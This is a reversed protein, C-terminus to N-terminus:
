WIVDVEDVGVMVLLDGVFWENLVYVESEIPKGHGVGHEVWEDIVPHIGPSNHWLVIKRM